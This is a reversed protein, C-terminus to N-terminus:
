SQETNRSLKRTSNPIMKLLFLLDAKWLAVDEAWSRAEDGQLPEGQWPFIPGAGCACGAIEESRGPLAAPDRESQRKIVSLAWKSSSNRRLYPRQVANSCAMSMQYISLVFKLIPEDRPSLTALGAFCARLLRDVLHSAAQAQHRHPNRDEPGISIYESQEM